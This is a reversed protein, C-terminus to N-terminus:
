CFATTSVRLAAVLQRTLLQGFGVSRQGGFRRAHAHARRAPLRTFALASRSGSLLPPLSRILPGLACIRLGLRRAHVTCHRSGSIACACIHLGLSRVPCSCSLTMSLSVQLRSVKSSRSAPGSPQDTESPRSSGSSPSPMEEKVEGEGAAAAAAAASTTAEEASGSAKAFRGKVRPRNDALVKRSVYKVQALQAIQPASCSRSPQRPLCCRL